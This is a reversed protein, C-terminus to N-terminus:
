IEVASISVVTNQLDHFHTELEFNAWIEQNRTLKPSKEILKKTKPDKRRRKEFTTLMAVETQNNM